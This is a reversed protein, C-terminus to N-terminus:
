RGRLEFEDPVSGSVKGKLDNAVVRALQTWVRYGCGVGTGANGHTVGSTVQPACVRISARQFGALGQRLGRGQAAPMPFGNLCSPYWNHHFQHQKIPPAHGFIIGDALLPSCPPHPFALGPLFFSSTFQM